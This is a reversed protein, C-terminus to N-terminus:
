TGAPTFAERPVLLNQAVAAAILLLLAIGIVATTRRWPRASSLVWAAALAAFITELTAGLTWWFVTPLPIRFVSYIALTWSGWYLLGALAGFKLTWSLSTRDVTLRWMLWALAGCQIAFAAYGFPILRFLEEPPRFFQASAKWHAALVVAHMWFDMALFIVWAAVAAAAVTSAPRTVAPLVAM